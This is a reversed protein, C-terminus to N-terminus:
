NKVRDLRTQTWVWWTWVLETNPIPYEITKSVRPTHGSISSITFKYNIFISSCIITSSINMFNESKIVCLSSSQEMYCASSVRSYRLLWCTFDRIISFFLKFFHQLQFLGLSQLSGGQWRDYSESTKQLQLCTSSLVPSPLCKSPGGVLMRWDHVHCILM